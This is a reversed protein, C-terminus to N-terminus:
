TDEVQEALRPGVDIPRGDAGGELGDLRGVALDDGGGHEAVLAVEGDHRQVRVPRHQARQLAGQLRGAEVDDVAVDADGLDALVGLPHGLM